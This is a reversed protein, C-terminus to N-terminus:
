GTPRTAARHIRKLLLDNAVYMLAKAVANPESVIHLQNDNWDLGLKDRVEPTRLLRRFTTTPLKNRIEPTIYGHDQLFNLAQTEADVVGGTMARFRAGEDPGWRLPGAGDQYSTHKLEIWHDAEDRDNVLVCLVSEFPNSKYEDSLRQLNQFIGNTLIGNIVDPNALVKLATTRRNGDLVIYRGDEDEMVIFLESPDLGHKVIDAALVQLRSSQRSAMERITDLQDESQTILRPNDEDLLLNDIPVELLKAM